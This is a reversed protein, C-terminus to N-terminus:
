LHDIADRLGNRIISYAEDQRVDFAPRVFPHAPAPAPGGHGFEVPNAYFADTESHHVGITITQGGYRRKKVGGILISKNLNGTIIRPDSSANRKMQAHIPQAANGLITRATAAGTDNADMAQAMRGIDGMFADFGDTELPM